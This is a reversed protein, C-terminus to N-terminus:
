FSNEACAIQVIRGEELRTAGMCMRMYVQWAFNKDAREDVRGEIDKQVALQLAWRQWAYVLRNSSGDTLLRESHIFAFGIWTKLEGQVLAKVVNYDSSTVETTNLLDELQCASHALFRDGPDVENYDLIRKAALVKAKSLGNGTAFQNYVVKNSSPFTIPTAGTQGTYATGGMAAILIDDKTRNFASQKAQMMTSKPDIAMQLADKPDELTASVFYRPSVMRRRFDPLQTPTDAYRTMLEVAVDQNYQDYFKNQGTWNNDVLVAMSFRTDMQQALLYITNNYQQIFATPPAGM